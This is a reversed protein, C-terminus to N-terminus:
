SLKYLTNSENSFEDIELVMQERATTEVCEKWATPISRAAAQGLMENKKSDNWSNQQKSPAIQDHHKELCRRSIYDDFPQSTGGEPVRPIYESVDDDITLDVFSQLMKKHREQSIQAAKDDKLQAQWVALVSMDDVISAMGHRSKCHIACEMDYIAGEADGADWRARSRIKLLRATQHKWQQNESVQISQILQLADSAVQIAREVEGSQWTDWAINEMCDLEGLVSRPYHNQVDALLLTLKDIKHEDNVSSDDQLRRIRAYVFREYFREDMSELCESFLDWGQLMANAISGSEIAGLSFFLSRVDSHAGHLLAGCCTLIDKAYRQKGEAFLRAIFFLVDSVAHPLCVALGVRLCSAAGVMMKRGRQVESRELHLCAQWLLHGFDFWNISQKGPSTLKFFGEEDTDWLRASWSSLLCSRMALLFTEPAQYCEPAILDAPRVFAQGFSLVDRARVQYTQSQSASIEFLSLPTQGTVDTCENTEINPGQRHDVNMESATPTMVLSAQSYIGAADSITMKKRRLYRQVETINLPKHNPPNYRCFKGKDSSQQYHAAAAAVSALKNNKIDFGWQSIRKKWMSLDRSNDSILLFTM